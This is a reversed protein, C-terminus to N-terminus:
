YIILKANVIVTVSVYDWGLLSTRNLGGKLAVWLGPFEKLAVLAKDLDSRTRIAKLGKRNSTSLSLEIQNAEAQGVQASLNLYNRIEVGTPNATSRSNRYIQSLLYGQGIDIGKAQCKVFPQQFKGQDYLNVVWWHEKQNRRFRTKCAQVRSFGDGYSLKIGAPINVLSSPQPAQRWAGFHQSSHRDDSRMSEFLERSIVANIFNDPDTRNCGEKFLFHLKNIKEKKEKRDSRGDYSLSSLSVRVCALFYDSYHPRAEM